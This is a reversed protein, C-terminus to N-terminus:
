KPYHRSKDSLGWQSCASGLTDLPLRNPGHLVKFPKRLQISPSISNFTQETVASVEAGTDIKFLTAKGNVEIHCTWSNQTPKQGELTDLYATEVSDSVSNPEESINSISKTHCMSSYHGKKICKHCTAEKASWNASFSTGKWLPYM